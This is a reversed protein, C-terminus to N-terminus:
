IMGLVEVLTGDAGHDVGGVDEQRPGPGPLVPAVDDVHVRPLERRHRVHGLPPGVEGAPHDLVLHLTLQLTTKSTVAYNQNTMRQLVSLPLEHDGPAYGRFSRVVVAVDGLDEAERLPGPPRARGQGRHETRLM